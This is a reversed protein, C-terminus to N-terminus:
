IRHFVNGGCKEPYEMICCDPKRQGKVEATKEPIEEM